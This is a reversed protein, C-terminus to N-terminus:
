KEGRYSALAAKADNIADVGLQGLYQPNIVETKTIRELAEALADAHKAREAMDIVLRASIQMNNGVRTKAVEVAENMGLIEM